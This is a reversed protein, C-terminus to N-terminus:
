RVPLILVFRSYWEAKSVRFGPTYPDDYKSDTEYYRQFRLKYNLTRAVATYSISRNVTAMARLPDSLYFGGVTFTNTYRGTEDKAFPNGVLGYYGTIVQAHAGRRALVGVPKGTAVMARVAAKMASSYSSFSFDDYVRAGAVLAGSGWGYYNLANRWGHPDSGYGGAMTDHRREWALIRDRVTGSNTPTWRFGVGGASRKAIFNLMSRVSTATCAAWNPDQFRFGTAVFTNMSRPALPPPPVVPTPTPAPAPQASPDATPDATTAPTPVPDPAATAVTAPESTREPTPIPTPEATPDPTPEPTPTPVPTATATEASAEPAATPDAASAVGPLAVMALAAGLLSAMILRHFLAAGFATSTAHAHM